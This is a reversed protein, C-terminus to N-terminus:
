RKVPKKRTFKTKMRVIRVKGREPFMRLEIPLSYELKSPKPHWVDRLKVPDSETSRPEYKRNPGRPMVGDKKPRTRQPQTPVAESTDNTSVTTEKQILESVDVFIDNIDSDSENQEAKLAEAYRIFFEM